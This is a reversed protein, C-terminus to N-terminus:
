DLPELLMNYAVNDQCPTVSSTTKNTKCVHFKRMGIHALAM